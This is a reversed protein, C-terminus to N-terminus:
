QKRTRLIQELDTLRELQSDLQGRVLRYIGPPDLTEAPALRCAAQKAQSQAFLKKLCNDCSLAYTKLEGTVGDSWRSAIKYIAPQGCEPNTCLVPFNLEM